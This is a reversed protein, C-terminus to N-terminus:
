AWACINLQIAEEILTGASTLDRRNAAIVSLNFAAEAALRRSNTRVQELFAESTSPSPVEVATSQPQSVSGAINEDFVDIASAWGRASLLLSLLILTFRMKDTVEAAAM